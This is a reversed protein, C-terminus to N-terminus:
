RPVACLQYPVPTALFSYVSQDSPRPQGEPVSFSFRQLLCCFFLFLEMRALPEGLCLRRGTPPYPAPPPSPSGPAQATGGSVGRSPAALQAACTGASFPMFAVQKIFRGQADLFNEPCFRSPEKWVTEDKLVSSLNTILMTGQCSPSSTLPPRQSGAVLMCTCAHVAQFVGTGTPCLSPSGHTGESGGTGAHM